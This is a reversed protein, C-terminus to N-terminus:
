DLSRAEVVGTGPQLVRTGGAAKKLEALYEGGQGEAIIVTNSTHTPGVQTATDMGHLQAQREMIRLVTNIADKEGSVAGKWVGMLMQELRLHMVARLDQTEASAQDLATKVIHTVARRPIGTQESIAHNGLGALKLGMVRQIQGKYKDPHEAVEEGSPVQELLAEKIAEEDQDVKPM